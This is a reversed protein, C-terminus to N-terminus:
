ECIFMEINVSWRHRYDDDQGVYLPTSQLMTTRSYDAPETDHLLEWVTRADSEGDSVDTHRINVQLRPYQIAELTGFSDDPATGAGAVMWICTDAAATNLPGAYIEGDPITLGQGQLIGQVTAKHDRTTTM